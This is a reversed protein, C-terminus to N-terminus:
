GVWINELATGGNPDLVVNNVKSGFINAQKAYFMPVLPVYTTMIEKDLKTWEAGQEAIPMAAIKSMKKDLAKDKINGVGGNTPLSSKFLPPYISDGAPWDYCWGTAVGKGMNVKAKPDKIKDRIQSQKVGIGKVKFGAKELGQKKAQYSKVAQDDDNVYYFSLEFGAKGAKSLMAKAKDPNGSGQGNLGEPLSYKKFGPVQPASITGGPAVDFETLSGALRIQQTPWAMAVAKRVELPIMQTDMTSYSWQNCSDPGTAVQSKQGGLAQKIISPDVGDYSLTTQDPGNDAFISKATQAQPRGFNLNIKDPFQNRAPDTKPDWNTNKSLKLSSGEAYKDVKYPGTNVPNKEYDTGSKTDKDKPIAGFMTFAALYPFTEMPKTLHFTLKGAKDDSEIGPFKADPQKYPGLYTQKGDKDQGGKLYELQFTPGGPMEETAFARKVSYEVDSAKIPTGDDYKLGKKLTFEWTLGDESQRGLDTAMDPVLVSKKGEMKYTTLRRTLLRHIMGTDSYYQTSPDMNGPVTEVNLTLTGGKKAGDPAPAPGKADPKFAASAPVKTFDEGDNGSNGSGGTKDSDGGGGCAALALTGTVAFAAVKTWRM